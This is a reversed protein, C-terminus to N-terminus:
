DKKIFFRVKNLNNNEVADDALFELLPVMHQGERMSPTPDVCSFWVMGDHYPFQELVIETKGQGGGMEIFLQVNVAVMEQYPRIHRPEVPEYSDKEMQSRVIDLMVPTIFYASLEHAMHGEM